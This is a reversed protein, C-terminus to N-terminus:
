SGEPSELPSDAKKGKESKLPPWIGHDWLDEFGAIALQIKRVNGEGEM